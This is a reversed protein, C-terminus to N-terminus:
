LRIRGETLDKYIDSDLPLYRPEARRSGLFFIPDSVVNIDYGERALKSKQFKFTGTKELNDTLRIFVPVAYLPLEMCIKRLMNQLDIQRQPDLIVAMSAKGECGPVEVGIVACDRLGSHKSVIEEVETTSVNEGKWRFTDGTRDKFFLYGDDDYVLIDGSAFCRDGKRVVDRYIKKENAEDDTYGDFETEPRGTIEAVYEGPENPGVLICLGDPGRLPEGTDPDVRIIFRHFVMRAITPSLRCITPFLGVAGVRGDINMINGNGETAGYIERIEPVGFRAQFADWIHPRMGNGLMMRLSHRTDQPRAPQALLYRCVEGIYQTTTCRYKICDDWFNSASFGPVIVATLGFLVTQSMQLVGGAFHYLPLFCYQIDDKRVGAFFQPAAATLFFRSHRLRAAKPLGTTGSTYVYLLTDSRNGRFKPPLSSSSLIGKLADAGLNAGSGTVTSDYHFFKPSHTKRLDDAIKSIPSAMNTSFIVAKTKVMNTCHLLPTSRLNTNLLATAVGIKSLGLWLLVLEPRNEIMLVVDDGAKLGQSSFYNGVQNTFQEAQKFTWQQSGYIFMTKEPFRKAVDQFVIPVTRNRFNTYRLYTLYAGFKIFGRIDRVATRAILRVTNWM